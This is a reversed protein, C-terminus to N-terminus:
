GEDTIASWLEENAAIALTSRSLRGLARRSLQAGGLTSGVAGAESAILLAAAYDYIKRRKSECYADILGHAVMCIELSSCGLYLYSKARKLKAGSATKQPIRLIAEEIINTPSTRIRRGSFYAGAGKVASYMGLPSMVVGYEVNRLYVAGRELTGAAISVAYYKLGRLAMDTGDIPDVIAFYRSGPAITLGSEESLM